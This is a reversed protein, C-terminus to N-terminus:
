HTCLTFHDHTLVKGTGPPPFLADATTTTMRGDEGHVLITLFAYGHEVLLARASAFPAHLVGFQDVMALMVPKPAKDGQFKHQEAAGLLQLVPDLTCGYELGKLMWATSISLDDYILAASLKIPHLRDFIDRSNVERAAQYVKDAYQQFQDPVGSRDSEKLTVQQCIVAAQPLIQPRLFNRYQYPFPWIGGVTCDSILTGDCNGMLVIVDPNAASMLFERCLAGPSIPVESDTVVAVRLIVPDKLFRMRCIASREACIAGGIYGQEANAGVVLRLNDGDYRVILIAVVRFFSQTPSSSLEVRIQNAYDILRQDDNMLDEIEKVDVAEYKETM